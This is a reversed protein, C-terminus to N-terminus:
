RYNRVTELFQARGQEATASRQNWFQSISDDVAGSLGGPLTLAPDMLQAARDRVVRMAHASCTDFNDTAVDLRVPISGLRQALGAQVAPERLTNMFLDQESRLAADKTAGFAFGDVMMIYAPAPAPALACDVDAGLTVGAAAIEGKAWDGMIQFAAEGRAVMRTTHSWRRGPSGADVYKRLEGFTQFVQLMTPSAIAKEDLQEYVQRYYNPGGVGLLVSNFLLREQWAQGGLALPVIGAARLKEATALFEPWSRPVALGNKRLLPKNYFMWNEGRITVPVALVRGEYRSLAAIGPPIASEWQALPSFTRVLNAAALESLQAGLSFQFVGPSRGGIIRSVAAARGTEGAGPMPTESWVGGQQVFRDRVVGLAAADSGTTLWHMVELAPPPTNAAPVAATGCILACAVICLLGSVRKELRPLVRTMM